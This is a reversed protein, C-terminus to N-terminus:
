RAARSTNVQSANAGAHLLMRVSAHSDARAALMLATNGQEDQSDRAHPNARLEKEAEEHEGNICALMLPTQGSPARKCRWDAGPLAATGEDNIDFTGCIM